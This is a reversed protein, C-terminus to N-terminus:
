AADGGDRVAAIIDRVVQEVSAAPPQLARTRRAAGAPDGAITLREVRM